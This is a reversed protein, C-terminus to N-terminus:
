QELATDEYGSHELKDYDKSNVNLIPWLGSCIFNVPHLSNVPALLKVLSVKLCM